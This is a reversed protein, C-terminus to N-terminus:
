NREPAPLLPLYASLRVQPPRLQMIRSHTDYLLSMQGHLDDAYCDDNHTTQPTIKLSAGPRHWKADLFQIMMQLLLTTM